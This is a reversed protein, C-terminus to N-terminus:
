REEMKRGDAVLAKWGQKIYHLLIHRGSQSVAIGLLSLLTDTDNNWIQSKTAITSLSVLLVM